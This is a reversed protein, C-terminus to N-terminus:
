LNRDEGALSFKIAKQPYEEISKGSTNSVIKKISVKDGLKFSSETLKYDLLYPGCYYNGKEDREVIGQYLGRKTERAM